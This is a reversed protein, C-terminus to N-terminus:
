VGIGLSHLHNFAKTAQFQPTVNVSSPIVGGGGKRSEVLESEIKQVREILVKIVAAHESLAKTLAKNQEYISEIVSEM